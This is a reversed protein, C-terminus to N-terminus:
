TSAKPAVTLMMHEYRPRNWCRRAADFAVGSPATAFNAVPPLRTARLSKAQLRDGVVIDVNSLNPHSSLRVILGQVCEAFGLGICSGRQNEGVALADRM